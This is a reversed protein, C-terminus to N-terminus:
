EKTHKKIYKANFESVLSAFLETAEKLTGHFEGGSANRHGGGGFYKACIEDCPFDGTSRMSVKIYESEERFYASYIVGPIALPKNVLGETDGKAYHYRNLEERSLWIMAGHDRLFVKMNSSLAYGNLKICSATFTNFLRRYLLNKDAGRGVLEAVIHYDEAHNANYSFNNTDTMMGALLCTAIDTDIVEGFSIVDLVSYLLSCTSSRQSDSVVVDFEEINPSLHHDILLKACKLERLLPELRSTRNLSNFDLCVLLDIDQLLKEIDAQHRTYNKIKSAGPLLMLNRNPEDPTVVVAQKGRKKMVQCVALSAGLADGDPSMHCTVAVNTARELM